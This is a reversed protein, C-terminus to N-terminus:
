LLKWFYVFNLYIIGSIIASMPLGGGHKRDTLAGSARTKDGGQTNKPTRNNNRNSSDGDNPNASSNPTNSSTSDTPTENATSTQSEPNTASTTTSSNSATSSGQGTSQSDNANSTISATSPQGNGASGLVGVVIAMKQSHTLEEGRSETRAKYYAERGRQVQRGMRGRPLNDLRDLEDDSLGGEQTCLQIYLEQIVDAPLNYSEYKCLRDLINPIEQEARPHIRRQAMAKMGSFGWKDALRLVTFWDELTAASYDDYLPNHLVWAFKAFEDPTADTVPIILQKVIHQIGPGESSSTYMDMSLHIEQVAPLSLRILFHCIRFFPTHLELRTLSPLVVDKPADSDPLVSESDATFPTPMDLYFQTLSPCGKLFSMWANASWPLSHPAVTVSLTQLNDMRMWSLDLWCSRLTVTRLFPVEKNFIEHPFDRRLFQNGTDLTLEEITQIPPANKLFPTMKKVHYGSVLASYSRFRHM